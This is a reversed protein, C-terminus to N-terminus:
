KAQETIKNLQGEPTSEKIKEFLKTLGYGIVVIAGIALTLAIVGGTLASVGLAAAIAGGATTYLSAIFPVKMATAKITAM